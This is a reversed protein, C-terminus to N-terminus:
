QSLPVTVTRTSFGTNGSSDTASVVILYVRGNKNGNREARLLLTGRAINKADPSFNGDGTAEDDDEDGYVRVTFTLNSDCNDSASGSLGVNILNHNPQWLQSLTVASTVVPAEHDEVKVTFSCTSTLSAADTVQCNVTT